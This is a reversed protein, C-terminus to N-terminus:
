GNPKFNELKLLQNINEVKLVSNHDMVIHSNRKGIIKKEKEFFKGNVVHIGGTERYIFERELRLNKNSNLPILGDGKHQYFNSNEEIVSIVSEADFLYLTNVAKEFYYSERYPYECNIISITDFKKLSFKKIVHIITDEIVTNLMALHNPREDFKILNKYRRELHEIIKVNPTTVVIKDFFNNKLVNKITIDILTSGLFPSLLYTDLDNDRIPIIALHRKKLIKKPKLYKKIIEHRTRYLREKNETLNEGHKRYYFLPLNINSVSKYNIMKIWLEYGDQCSFNNSYGGLEKLFSKRIMTCAGHAPQDLLSVKSFNHRKEETIIEGKKDILYYDSFVLGVKDNSELEQVMLLLANSDFYDDADLRVIYKGKSMRIAINNTVNLGKNKQFIINIKPHSKYNEIIEKSNDTSGDDIIILEFDQYKQNLVSEVAQEIYSSYNFNTIYVTVLPDKIIKNWNLSTKFNKPIKKQKASKNLKLLNPYKKFFIFIDDMTYSFEKKNKKFYSLMKKIVKYDDETDLTLRLRNNHKEKVKLSSVEFQDINNTVYNTLYESGSTDYSLEFITKLTDRQFIETDTGSPLSKADTYQANTKLHYKITKNLYEPDILIDDGTIRVIINHDKNDNIALMMRALVDNVQGQYIKLHYKSAIEVLVNDVELNTTCFAITDIYGKKKAISLRELLHEIATKKNILKIAKGPLRSSDMRVVIVALVKNEFKDRTIEEELKISKVLKKGILEDYSLLNISNPTRKMIIDKSTLISGKKLPKKCTWSKKVSERYIKEAKSFNYLSSGLAKESRDINLIFKKFELPEFSSYYDIGKKNRNFTVHKEIYSLNFPLSLIPLITAFPDDGRIHDSYGIEIEPNFLNRLTKLRNLNSDETATPYSQFGHMLIIQKKNQVKNLIKLAYKIELINSGGVALFIKSNEKSLLELLPKNNLDSSHIKYGDVRCTKAIKFAKIGFVDAFIMVNLKKSKKLLKIWQKKSFSQKKFHKYKKHNKVLLEDAFYIQFKIADAGAEAFSKAMSLAKLSSGQHANAIEAIIKIKKKL